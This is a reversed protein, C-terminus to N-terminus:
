TYTAGNGLPNTFSGEVVDSNCTYVSDWSGATEELVAQEPVTVHGGGTFNVQEHLITDTTHGSVDGCWWFDQTQGSQIV